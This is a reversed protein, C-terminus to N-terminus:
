LREENEQEKKVRNHIVDFEREIFQSEDDSDISVTPMQM